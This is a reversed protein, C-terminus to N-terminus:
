RKQLLLAFDLLLRQNREDLSEMASAFRQARDTPLHSADVFLEGVGTGVAEAIAMLRKLSPIAKGTEFRSITEPEVEIAAALDSQTMGQAKRKQAIARGLKKQLTETPNQKPKKPMCLVKHLGLTNVTAPMQAIIKNM